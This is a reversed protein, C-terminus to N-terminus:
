RWKMLFWMRRIKSLNTTKTHEHEINKFTIGNQGIYVTWPMPLLDTHKNGMKVKFMKEVWSMQFIIDGSIVVPFNFKSVKELEKNRWIPNRRASSCFSVLINKEFLQYQLIKTIKQLINALFSRDRIVYKRSIILLVIVTIETSNCYKYHCLNLIASLSREDKNEQENRRPQWIWWKSCEEHLCNIQSIFCSFVLSIVYMITM